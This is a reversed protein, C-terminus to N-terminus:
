GRLVYIVLENPIRKKRVTREFLHGERFSIGEWLLTMLAARLCLRYPTNQNLYPTANTRMM